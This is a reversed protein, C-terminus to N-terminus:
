YGCPHRMKREELEEISSQSRGKAREGSKRDEVESGADLVIGLLPRQVSNRM